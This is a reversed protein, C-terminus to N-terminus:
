DTEGRPESMAHCCAVPLFVLGMVGRTELGASVGDTGSQVTVVACMFFCYCLLKITYTDVCFLVVYGFCLLLFRDQNHLM